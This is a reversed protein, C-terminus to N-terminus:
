EGIEQKVLGNLYEAFEGLQMTGKDGEGQMRVSVTGDAEEKEGVILLFPIRKLENDDLLHEGAKQRKAEAQAFQRFMRAVEDPMDTGFHESFWQRAADEATLPRAPQATPAAPPPTETGSPQATKEPKSKRFLKM